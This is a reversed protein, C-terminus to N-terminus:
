AQPPPPAQPILGKNRADVVAKDLTDVFDRMEPSFANLGASKVAHDTIQALIQLRQPNLPFVPFGAPQPAAPQAPPAGRPAARKKSM